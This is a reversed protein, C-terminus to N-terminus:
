NFLHSEVKPLQRGVFYLLVCNPEWINSNYFVLVCNKAVWFHTCAVWFHTAVWRNLVVSNFLHIYSVSASSDAKGWKWKITTTGEKGKILNELQHNSVYFYHTNAADIINILATFFLMKKVLIIVCVLCFLSKIIM